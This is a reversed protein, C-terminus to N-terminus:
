KTLLSGSGYDIPYSNPYYRVDGFLQFRARQGRLVGGTVPGSHLGFRFGLASFFSCTRSFTYARHQWWSYALVARLGLSRCKGSTEPGLDVELKRMVVGVRRACDQAFRAMILAHRPNAEPLGCCAVPLAFLLRLRHQAVSSRFQVYLIDKCSVMATM